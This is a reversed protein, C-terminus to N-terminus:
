AVWGGHTFRHLLFLECFLFIPVCFAPLWHGFRGAISNPRAQTLLHGLALALLVQVCLGHRIMSGMGRSAMSTVSVYFPLWACLYLGARRRLGSPGQRRRLWCEIGALLAFALLFLWVSLQSLFDSAIGDTPSYALHLRLAKSSFLALYHPTIGWGVHQTRMYENWRDFHAQCFWFFSLCGAASAVGILLPMTCRKLRERLKPGSDTAAGILVRVLPYIVLPLGVLRTATMGFGHVAAMAAALYGERESWYVFGLTCALFLSESYGAVLFFASPYALVSLVVALIMRRSVGWHSLLLLLYTWFAWSSLQATLLLAEGTPLGTLTRVQRTLCPYGPFFGVNAEGHPNPVANYGQDVVTSYWFSDWQCLSLYAEHLNERGSLLCAVLIQLLTLLLGLSVARLSALAKREPM